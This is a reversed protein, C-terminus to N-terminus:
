DQRSTFNSNKFRKFTARHVLFNLTPIIQVARIIPANYGNLFMLSFHQLVTLRLPSNRKSALGLLATASWKWFTLPKFHETLFDLFNCLYFQWNYRHILLNAAAKTVQVRLKYYRWIMKSSEKVRIHTRKRIIDCGLNKWATKIFTHM